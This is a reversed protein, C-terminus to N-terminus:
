NCDVLDEGSFHECETALCFNRYGKRCPSHSKFASHHGMKERYSISMLLQGLINITFRFSNTECM